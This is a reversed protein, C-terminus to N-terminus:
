AIRSCIAQKGMTEANVWALFASNISRQASETLKRYIKEYFVAVTKHHVSTLAIVCGEYDPTASSLETTIKGFLEDALPKNFNNRQKETIKLAWDRINEM